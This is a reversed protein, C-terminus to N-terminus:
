PLSRRGIASFGRGTLAGFCRRRGIWASFLPHLYRVSYACGVPL